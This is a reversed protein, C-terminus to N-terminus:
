SIKRFIFFSASYMVVGSVFALGAMAVSIDKSFTNFMKLICMLFVNFLSANTFLKIHIIIDSFAIM